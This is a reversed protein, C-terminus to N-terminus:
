IDIMSSIFNKLLKSNRVNFSFLRFFECEYKMDNETHQSLWSFKVDLKENKRRMEKLLM